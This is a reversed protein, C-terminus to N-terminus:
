IDLPVTSVGDSCVKRKIYQYNLGQKAQTYTVMHHDVVKFGKNKVMHTEKNHLVDDYTALTLHNQKQIVGKCTVKCTECMEGDGAYSKSSLSTLGDGEWENKFLGPTRQDYILRSKCCPQAMWPLNYTRCAIYNERHYDIDCSESPLWLHRESFYEQRKEDYVAADLSTESLAIYFSDTDVECLEFKRIDIFKILFDYYFSLMKLKAYQYVMFGIQIPLDYLVTTPLCSLEVTDESVDNVQQVSWHLALYRARKQTVYRTKLFNMKNTITKGYAANGLLKYLDSLIKCDSNKDGSRRAETVEKVFPNFTHEPVYEVVVYVQSVVLGNKLYWQLLPTGLLIKEGYYSGILQRQPKNLKNNKELFHKMHGGVNERSVLKNKFIPTMEQFFVKLHEPTHIDVQVMGFLSGDEVKELIEKQSLRRATEPKKVVWHEKCQYCSSEERLARWKCEYQEIVKYGLGKLYATTQITNESREQIWKKGAETTLVSKTLHCVHGHWYCGHFQYVTKSDPFYGDVHIQKGGLAVEGNNYQHLICVDDIHARYRLWEAAAYSVRQSCESIFRNERRRVTYFGTCHAEGMCKLYLSNADIGIIRECVKSKLGYVRERIKTEGKFHRRHFIISPGGVLNQRLLTHIDKDHNSFLVYPATNTQFLFNLTLGPLSVGDKFMDVNRNNFFEGHTNIARVFPAVDLNNYHILYDRFTNMKKEKWVQQCRKYEAKTINTCTLYNYFCSHPPLTKRKLKRTDTMWEYPFIGKETDGVFAKLYNAYNYGPSLYNLIDLFLLNETYVAIYQNCRKITTIEKPDNETFFSHFERKILNLDYRGSNFGIVPVRRIYCLLENKLKEAPVKDSRGPAMRSLKLALKESEKQEVIIGNLTQLINEYKELVCMGIKKGLQNIHNLVTYVIPNDTKNNERVFCVPDTHGPFDSAVSASLPVHDQEIKTCKMDTNELKQKVFYSEFDFVIKYPYITLNKPTEIGYESLKQFITKKPKYVGGKYRFSVRTCDKKIGTHRKLNYRSAFVRKCKVCAFLEGYKQMDVILSLHNKHLNLNMVRDGNTMGSRIFKVYTSKDGKKMHKKSRKCLKYVQIKVQLVKEIENMQSMDLGRYERMTISNGYVREFLESVHSLNRYLFFSLCRFFCLNDHLVRKTKPHRHFHQMGHQRLYQPVSDLKGLLLVGGSPRLLTINANVNGIVRWKTHPRDTDDAVRDEIERICNEFASQSDVLWYIDYHDDHAFISANNASAHFYKVEEPEGEEKKSLLRGYSIAVKYSYVQNRHIATLCSVIDTVSVGLHTLRVNFISQISGLVVLGSAISNFNQIYENLYLPSTKIEPPIFTETESYSEKKCSPTNCLIKKSNELTVLRPIRPINCLPCNIATIKRNKRGTAMKFCM